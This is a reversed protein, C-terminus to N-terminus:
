KNEYCEILADLIRNGESRSSTEKLLAKNYFEIATEYKKQMRYYDGILSYVDYYMPNSNIFEAIKQEGFGTCDITKINNLIEDKLKKFNLFNKYEKSQLFTDAPITLSDENIERNNLMGPYNDFIKKLDYAKYEGLQFPETSVWVLLKSPNFIVSHHAILQNIAKENGMGINKDNLGKQDRLIEAAIKYNIKPYKNLLEKVRRLRYSSTGNIISQTNIKSTSFTDGQFHNTCVIKNTKSFFLDIKNTSKEIIAAKNDEFSSVLISESVFTEHKKAIQFAQSINESYQLIERALISIPTKASFPIESRAANLTVTLDKENMGSVVGIMGGWTIYMFRFGKDPKCFCVIKNKAFDDGVYFDFNRGVIMSNDDTASDWAAFSTCGVMNMNQLAHGIDHAGHYNLIRQYAPGINTFEDSAAKSIGLIELLYDRDIYKDIDKNYWAILYKLFYLYINSPVMKKIQTVFAKEQKYILDKALIGNMAGLEFPDGELYMEWLGSNSKRLWNNKVVFFDKSIEKRNYKLANLSDPTPPILTVANEFSILFAAILLFFVVISIKLKRYKKM